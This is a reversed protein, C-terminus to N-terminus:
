EESGELFAKVVSTYESPKEYHVCHGAGPVVRL